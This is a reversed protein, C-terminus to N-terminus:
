AAGQQKAFRKSHTRSAPAKPKPTRRPLQKPSNEGQRQRKGGCEREESVGGEGLGPLGHVVELVERALVILGAAQRHGWVASQKGGPGTAVGRPIARDDPCASIRAAGPKTGQVVVIIPGVVPGVVVTCAAIRPEFKIIFEAA